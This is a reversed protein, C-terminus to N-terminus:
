LVALPACVLPMIAELYSKAFIMLSIKIKLKKRKQQMQFGVSAIVIRDTESYILFIFNRFLVTRSIPVVTLIVVEFLTVLVYAFVM